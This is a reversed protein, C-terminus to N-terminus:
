KADYWNEGTHVEIVLPVLLSAAGTMEEKLIQEVKKEEPRYVEILLEDHVQVIMRSKLGEAKM